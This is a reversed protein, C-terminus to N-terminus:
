NGFVQVLVEPSGGPSRFHIKSGSVLRGEHLSQPLENGVKFDGTGVVAPASGTGSTASDAEPDEDIAWAIGATDSYLIIGDTGTPLAVTTIDGDSGGLQVTRRKLQGNVADESYRVNRELRHPDGSTGAGSAEFYVINGNADRLQFTAM